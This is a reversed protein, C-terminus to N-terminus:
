PQAPASLRQVSVTGKGSRRTVAQAMSARDVKTLIDGPLWFKLDAYQARDLGSRAPAGTMLAVLPQEARYDGLHRIMDPAYLTGRLEPPVVSLGRAYGESWTSRRCRRTASCAAGSAPRCCAASGNRTHM